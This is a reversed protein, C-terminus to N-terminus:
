ISFYGAFMKTERPTVLVEGDFTSFFTMPLPSAPSTVVCSRPESGAITSSSVRLHHSQDSLRAVVGVLLLMHSLVPSTM